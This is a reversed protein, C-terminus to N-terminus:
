YYHQNLWNNIENDFSLQHLQTASIRNWKGSEFIECWKGQDSKMIRLETLDVVIRNVENM